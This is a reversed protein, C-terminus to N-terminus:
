SAFFLVKKLDPLHNVEASRVKYIAVNREHPFVGSEVVCVEQPKLIGGYSKEKMFLGGMILFINQNCPDGTLGFTKGTAARFFM